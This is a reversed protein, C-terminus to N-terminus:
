SSVSKTSNLVAIELRTHRDNIARRSLSIDIHFTKNRFLKANDRSM